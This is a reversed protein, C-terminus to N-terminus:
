PQRTPRIATIAPRVVVLACGSIQVGSLKEGLLAVSLAVAALPEALSLTGATSAPTSQIGHMFCWDVSGCTVVGLWVGLLLPAPHLVAPARAAMAPVAPLAGLLLTIAAVTTMNTGETAATTSAAVTYLGYCLGAGLAALLGLVDPQQGSTSHSLLLTTGAVCIATSM